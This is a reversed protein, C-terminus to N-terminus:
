YPFFLASANNKMLTAGSGSGMDGVLYVSYTGSSNVNMARTIEFPTSSTSASNGMVMAM